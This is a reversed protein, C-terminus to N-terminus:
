TAILEGVRSALADMTFPKTLIHMGTDLHVHSVVANEAYGTIFLVKLGPRALRAADAVQRGNMGGPLGVDTVLLDIRVDSRLVQLGTAGDAAEITRYGLDELVEAVLMRVTPEDDVVLVTQGAEARPAEAQEPALGATDAAGLYRPLYICVMTGQDVESYIRVQGGSKRTFGYIMSLGLGTGQGIPKTTFFPDFAKAIVDPAMGTGTDSVCLSVYQGAPLDRERAVLEDLRQNGTEIMIRGGDPMADRANICLNLLANELQSSDVLTVWLEVAAAHEVSVSPGVTRRILEEMGAVLQNMDTPRPDLTQRRSFALLRHTLAAARRAAGQAASIFRDAEKIRGQGIRTQLLELSGTVGTLLNNFDHALGGTLQGVAEMKQSQRLAEETARQETVDHGSFLVLGSGDILREVFAVRGEILVQRGESYMRPAHYIQLQRSELCRRAHHAIDRASDPPVFAAVNRGVIESRVLGMVRECAPNMDEFRISGHVGVRVLFLYAESFNFFIAARKESLRLADAQTRAETIDRTVSFILGDRPIINSSLWRYTGDKCRYRIELNQPLGSIVRAMVARTTELDDPHVAELFQQAYLEADSWGLTASWAPNIRVVYGDLNSVSLLDVSTDWVQDRERTRQEVREELTANQAHLLAENEILKVEIAKRESIDTFLIAVHHEEAAGVQYAHVEYWRGGLARAEFEFRVPEGTQAIRQYTDFWFQEHDPALDRMWRGCVQRLGTQKEFAANVELFRYDNPIHNEDYRVEVICFGVDIAEYLTRYRRESQRLAAAASRHETRDSVVKVFGVVEGDEAKLPTTEGQAWFRTGDKRRYWHQETDRGNRLASDREKEVQGGAIDEPTFFRQVPQGIMEAETWGIVHHAGENWRTVRSNLDTAMIAYDAAGDLIQRDRAESVRLAAAARVRDTTESSICLLGVVRGMGDRVPSYSCTWWTDESVGSRTMRIPMDEFRSAKGAFGQEVSPRL